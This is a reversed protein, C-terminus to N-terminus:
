KVEIPTNGWDEGLEAEAIVPVRLQGASEMAEKIRKAARVGEDGQPVTLDLEDHVTLHVIEDEWNIAQDVAVMAVKILDAASGQLLKNLSKHSEIYVGNIKKFRCRRGGWTIIYGRSAAKNAARQAMIRVEPIASHYQAFIEKAEDFSANLSKALKKEGMGYLFGFNINKAQGRPVGTLDSVMQHYDVTPDENYRKQVAGGAYHAFFRYEIQSFDLRLWQGGDYAPVFLGRIRPAWESDRKPINQANLGGASSFRGTITGGFSSKAQHFSPHIFNFETINKFIYNEIFVEAYHRTRRATLVLKAVEHDINNLFEKRVSPNGAATKEIDIGNRLLLQAVQGSSNANMPGGNLIALRQNAQEHESMLVGKLAMAKDPDVRVGALYMKVLIPILDSELKLVKGLDMVDIKPRLFLYLLRTLHADQEAYPEIVYGPARWYSGVQSKGEKGGFMARCYGDAERTDKVYQEGLYKICLSELRYSEEYEDLIAAIVCTDECRAPLQGGINKLMRLDFVANHFVVLLGRAVVEENWWRLADEKSCNNGGGEHGWRAYARTGNELAYSIGVPVDYRGLGTTETDVWIISAGELRPLIVQESM